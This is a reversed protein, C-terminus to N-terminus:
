LFIDSVICPGIFTLFSVVVKDHAIFFSHFDSITGYKVLIHLSDCFVLVPWLRIGLLVLAKPFMLPSQTRKGVIEQVVVAATNHSYQM